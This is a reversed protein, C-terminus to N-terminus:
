RPAACAPDSKSRSVASFSQTRMALGVADNESDFRMGLRDGAVWRRVLKAEAHRAQSEREIGAM